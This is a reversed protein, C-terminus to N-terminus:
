PDYVCFVGTRVARELTKGLEPAQSSIRGLADRIRRQVNIRAREVQSGARRARGGLGLGAVLQDELAELEARAEDDGEGAELQSRLTAIRAKYAAIATGDLLEGGHGRDVQGPDLGCLELVHFSQRPAALLQALYRLGKSDELHLTRGAGALEWLEGKQTLTVGASPRPPASRPAPADLGTLVIGLESALSDGRATLEGARAHDDGKGRRGLVMSLERLIWTQHVRAGVREAQALAATLRQVALDLEGRAAACLGLTREYPADIYLGLAGWPAMRGAHRIFRAEIRAALEADGVHRVIDGVLSCTAPDGLKVMTDVLEAGLHAPEGCQTRLAAELIDIWHHAYAVHAFAHRVEAVAALADRPRGQSRLRAIRQMGLAREANPDRAREGEHRAENWLRESDAFRGELLARMAALGLAQWRLHPVDLRAMLGEVQSLARNAAAADGLEYRDFTLRTYARLAEFPEGLERALAALEENLPARAAPDGLDAMASTVSRLTELLVARDDLTRALALADLAQAIPEDPDPAPQLAAAHRALLRVRLSAEGPDLAALAEELLAVLMPDVVGFLFARGYELAARALLESAGHRRALEAAEVCLARSGALDGAMARARAHLLTLEGTRLPDREPRAREAALARALWGAADDFALQGSAQEAACRAAEVAREALAPGAALLHHAILTWPPSAQRASGGLLDAARRHLAHRESEALGGYLADRLLVHSFRLRGPGAAEIVAADLVEGLAQERQEAPWGGLTGLLDEDLERGLVAARTALEHAAPSLSALRQALLARIGQPLARSSLVLPRARDPALLRALEVLFLPHGECTDLLADLEAASAPRALARSLFVEVEERSLRGLTLTHAVRAARALLAGPGDSALATPRATAVVLLQSSRAQVALLELALLSDDDAAHMDELLVLLPGSAAADCLAGVLADLLMFRAQQPPLEVPGQPEDGRLEPLLPALQRRRGASIAASAPRRLLGRLVEIFPWYAPAGGAEWARGWLPTIGTAQARQALEEGLRTKGIGAEGRVLLLGGTGLCAGTLAEDLQALAADRGVFVHRVSEMVSLM